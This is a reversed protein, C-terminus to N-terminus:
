GAITRSPQNWGNVKAKRYMVLERVAYGLLLSYGAAVVWLNEQVPHTQYALYSLTATFSWIFVFRFATFVALAVPLCIYWPHVTTSFLFWITIVLLATIFFDRDTKNGSRFSLSCIFWAALLALVPGAWAILNFGTTLTGLWRVLYYLSANFEFRTIFLNISQLLHQATKVDFVLAFLALTTLGTLLVYRWGKKWGLRHFILPIFLVPLLKTAIGLALCIASGQWQYQLVLLFSGLLFFV